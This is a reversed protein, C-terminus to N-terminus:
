RDDFDAGIRGGIFIKPIVHVDICSADKFACAQGIYAILYVILNKGNRGAGLCFGFCQSM